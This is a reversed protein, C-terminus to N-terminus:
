ACFVCLCYSASHGCCSHPHVMDNRGAKQLSAETLKESDTFAGGCPNEWVEANLLLWLSYAIYTTFTTSFVLVSQGTVDGQIAEWRNENSGLAECCKGRSWMVAVFEPCLKVSSFMCFNELFHNGSTRWRRRLVGFCKPLECCRIYWTPMDASVKFHLM